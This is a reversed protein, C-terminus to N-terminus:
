TNQQLTNTHKNIHTIHHLFIKCSEYMIRVNLIAAKHVNITM